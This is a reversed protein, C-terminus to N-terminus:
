TIFHIIEYETSCVLKFLKHIKRLPLNGKPFIKLTIFELDHFLSWSINKFTLTPNLVFSALCTRLENLENPLDVNKLEMKLPM